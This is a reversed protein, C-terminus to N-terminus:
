ALPKQAKHYARWSKRAETVLLIVLLFLIPLKWSLAQPDNVAFASYAWFCCAGLSLSARLLNRYPQVKGQGALSRAYTVPDGFEELASSQSFALHERVRYAEERARAETMDGRSRLEQIFVSLWAAEDGPVLEQATHPSPEPLHKFALAGLLGLVAAILLLWWPSYRTSSAGLLGFVGATAGSGLLTFLACATLAKVFGWRRNARQYLAGVGLTLFALLLPAALMGIKPDAQRDSPLALVLLFLLSYFAGLCLGFGIFEKLSLPTDELFVQTGKDRWLAIKHAVWEQPPGYLQAPSQGTTEVQRIVGRVASESTAAKVSNTALTAFAAQVWDTDESLDSIQRIEETLREYPTRAM